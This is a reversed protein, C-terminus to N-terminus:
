IIVSRHGPKLPLNDKPCFPRRGFSGVYEHGEKCRWVNIRKRKRSPKAKQITRRGVLSLM